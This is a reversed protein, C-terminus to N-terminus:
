CSDLGLETPDSTAASKSACVEAAPLDAGRRCSILAARLSNKFCQISNARQSINNCTTFLGSVFKGCYDVYLLLLLSIM